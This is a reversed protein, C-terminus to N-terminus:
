LHFVYSYNCKYIFLKYLKYYMYNLFLKIFVLKTYTVTYHM